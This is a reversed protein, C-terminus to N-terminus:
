ETLPLSHFFFAYPADPMSVWTFFIRATQIKWESFLGVCQILHIIPVYVYNICSRKAQLNLFFIYVPLLAHLLICCSQFLTRTITQHRMAKVLIQEATKFFGFFSITNSIM